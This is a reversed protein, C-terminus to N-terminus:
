SADRGVAAFSFALPGGTSRRWRANILKIDFSGTRNPLTVHLFGVTADLNQASRQASGLINSVRGPLTDFLFKHEGGSKGLM